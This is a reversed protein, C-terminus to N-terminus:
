FTAQKTRLEFYKFENLLVERFLREAEHRHQEKVILEDHVTLFPIEADLLKRWVKRLIQVETSSLLYAMNSWPKFKNHPNEKYAMRKVDNIWWCWEAGNFLKPLEDSAPAFIMEFFRKKGEDRTALGAKAAMMHYVDEGEDIWRSFENTPSHLKKLLKGLITPQSQAVDLGVTPVDDLLINPRYIRHFNTVPTHVRQCFSDVTFYQPLHSEKNKLFSDFYPTSPSGEVLTIRQLYSALAEYGKPIERQPLLHINVESPVLCAYMLMKHGTKPSRDESISLQGNAVLKALEIKRNYKPYPFFRAEIEKQDVHVPDGQKSDKLRNQFFQLTAVYSLFPVAGFTSHAEGQHQITNYTNM